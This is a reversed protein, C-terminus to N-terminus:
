LCHGLDAWCACLWATLLGRVEIFFTIHTDFRVSGPGVPGPAYEVLEFASFNQLLRALMFATVTYAFQLSDAPPICAPPLVPAGTQRPM